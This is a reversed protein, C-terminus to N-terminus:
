ILRIKIVEFFLNVNMLERSMAGEYDYAQKVLTCEDKSKVYKLTARASYIYDKFKQWPVPRLIPCTGFNM